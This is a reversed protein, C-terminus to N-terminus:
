EDDTQHSEGSLEAEPLHLLLDNVVDKTGFGVVAPDSRLSLVRFGLKLLDETM